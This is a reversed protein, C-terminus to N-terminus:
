RPSLALRVFFRKDQLDKQRDQPSGEVDLLCSPVYKSGVTALVPVIALGINNRETLM